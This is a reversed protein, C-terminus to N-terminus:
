GLKLRVATQFIVTLISNKNLDADFDDNVWAGKNKDSLTLREFDLLHSDKFFGIHYKFVTTM